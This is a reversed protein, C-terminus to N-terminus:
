LGLSRLIIQSLWFPRFPAAVEERPAAFLQLSKITPFGRFGAIRDQDRLDPTWGFLPSELRVRCSGLPYYPNGM